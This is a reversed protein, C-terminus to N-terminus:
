IPIDDLDFSSFDIEFDLGLNYIHCLLSIESIRALQFKNWGQHDCVFSRIIHMAILLIVKMEISHSLM